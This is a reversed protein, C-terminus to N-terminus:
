GGWGSGSAKSQASSISSKSCGIQWIQM